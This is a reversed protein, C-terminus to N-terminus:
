LGGCTMVHGKVLFTVPYDGTPVYQTCNPFRKFTPLEVLADHGLYLLDQIFSCKNYYSMFYKKTVSDGKPPPKPKPKSKCGRVQIGAELLLLSLLAFKETFRM